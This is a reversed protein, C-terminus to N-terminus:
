SHDGHWAVLQVQNFGETLRHEAAAVPDPWHGQPFAALLAAPDGSLNDFWYIAGAPVFRRASKPHNNLLDWGSITESRGVISTCLTASVGNGQWYDGTLEAPAYGNAFLGPSQLVLAFRKHKAIVEVPADPWQVPSPQLNAGHGDGGLRLLTNEPFLNNNSHIRVAFGFRHEHTHIFEIREATYLQGNEVIRLSGDMGIGTCHRRAAINNTKVICDLTLDSGSVYRMWGEANLYLGSMAKGPKGQRLIPLASSATASQIGAPLPSPKIRQIDKPTEDGSVVVDAPLPILPSVASDNNSKQALCLRGLQFAGSTSDAGPLALSQALPDQAAVLAKITSSTNYGKAALVASRIAGSVVSPWPLLQASAHEGAEGFNQNGRPSLVDLADIFYDHHSM